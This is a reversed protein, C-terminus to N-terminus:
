GITSTSGMSIADHKPRAAEGIDPPIKTNAPYVLILGIANTLREVGNNSTPITTFIITAYQKVSYVKPVIQTEPICNANNRRCFKARTPALLGIESMERWFLM